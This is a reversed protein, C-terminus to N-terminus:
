DLYKSLKEIIKQFTDMEIVDDMDIDITFEKEIESILNLHRLSDWAALSDSNLNNNVETIIIGMVESFIKKIKEKYKQEM